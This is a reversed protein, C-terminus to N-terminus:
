PVGGVGASAAALVIQNARAAGTQEVAERDVSVGSIRQTEAALSNPFPHLSERRAAHVKAISKIGQEDDM